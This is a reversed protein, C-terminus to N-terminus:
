AEDRVEPANRNEIWQLAATRWDDALIMGVNNRAEKKGFMKFDGFTLLMPVVLTNFYDTLMPGDVTINACFEQLNESLDFCNFFTTLDQDFDSMHDNEMRVLNKFAGDLYPSYTWNQDKIKNWVEGGAGTTYVHFANSVQFYRGVPIGVHAAVYELLMSFQVNNAGYAGWIMDNSRNYVTLDLASNRVRFVVQMNCAKDKTDHDLDMPDWIQGVVQRSDPKGALEGVIMEIQDQYRGCTEVRLRYGYPANFTVGNDSYDAMRPNFMALFKVDERGKLIWLAEMLHFFPNADREQNILVRYLPNDYVTTVPMDMELTTGVRSKRVQGFDRLMMTGQYLADNIDSCRIVYM